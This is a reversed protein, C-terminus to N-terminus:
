RGLAFIERLEHPAVVELQEFTCDRPPKDNRWRRFQAISVEGPELPMSSGAPSEYEARNAPIELYCIKGHPM